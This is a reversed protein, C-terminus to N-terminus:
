KPQKARRAIQVTESSMARLAPSMRAMERAVRQMPGLAPSEHVKPEDFALHIATRMKGMEALTREISQHVPAVPSGTASLETSKRQVDRAAALQDDTQQLLRLIADM